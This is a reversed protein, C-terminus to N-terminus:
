LLNHAWEPVEVVQDFLAPAVNPHVPLPPEIASQSSKFDVSDGRLLIRMAVLSPGHCLKSIDGRAVADRDLPAVIRASSYSCSWDFGASAM